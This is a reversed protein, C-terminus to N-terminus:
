AHSGWTEDLQRALRTLAGPRDRAPLRSLDFRLDTVGEFALTDFLRLSDSRRTSVTLEDAPVERDETVWLKASVPVAAGRGDPLREGLKRTLALFEHVPLDPGLWGARNAVIRDFARPAAGGLWLPPHPRQVPRPLCRVGDLTMRESRYTVPEGTWLERMVKITEDALAHRAGFDVGLAAFEERLWGYGLAVEIRGESLADLTSVIKAHTVPHRYGAIAVTVAFRLKTTHGALYALTTYAELFPRDPAVPHRAGYPYRSTYDPPIVIHDGVWGGTFGLEEALAAYLRVNSPTAVGGAQPLQVWLRIM